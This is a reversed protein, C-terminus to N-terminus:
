GPHTGADAALAGLRELGDAPVAAALSAVTADRGPWPLEGAVEAAPRLVFARAHARPHPLTLRPGDLVRDAFLILDLDLTRPANRAGRRRGHDAELALLADLLALPDGGADVEFAVAANVFDPSGPPCDVPASRWLSSARLSAPRSSLRALGPLVARLTDAPRDLNAGLAVLARHAADM